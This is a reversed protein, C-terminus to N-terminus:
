IYLKRKEFFITLIVLFLIKIISYLTLLKSSLTVLLILIILLILLSIHLFYLFNSFDNDRKSIIKRCRYDDISKLLIFPLVFLIVIELM